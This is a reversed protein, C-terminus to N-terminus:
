QSAEIQAAHRHLANAIKRAQKPTLWVLVGESKWPSAAYISVTGNHHAIGVEINDGQADTEIVTKSM